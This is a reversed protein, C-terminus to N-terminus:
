QCRYASERSLRPIYALCCSDVAIIFLVQMTKLTQTCLNQEKSLNLVEEKTDQLEGASAAFGDLWTMEIAADSTVDQLDVACM